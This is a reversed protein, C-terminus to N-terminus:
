RCLFPLFRSPTFKRSARVRADFLGPQRLPLGEHFTRRSMKLFELVLYFMVRRKSERKAEREGERDRKVSCDNTRSVHVEHVCDPEDYGRSWSRRGESGNSSISRGARGNDHDDEEEDEAAM